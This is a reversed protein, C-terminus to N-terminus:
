QMVNLIEDQIGNRIDYQGSSVAQMILTNRSAIARTRIDRQNMVLEKWSIGARPRIIQDGTAPPQGPNQSVQVPLSSSPVVPEPDKAAPENQSIDVGSPRTQDSVAAAQAQEQQIPQLSEPKVLQGGSVAQEKRYNNKGSADIQDSQVSKQEPVQQEEVSLSNNSWAPEAKRVAQENRSRGVGSEMTQDSKASIQVQVQQDQVSLNNNSGTSEDKSTVQGNGYIDGSGGVQDNQVSPQTQGQLPQMWPSSNTRNNTRANVLYIGTLSLLICVIIYSIKKM